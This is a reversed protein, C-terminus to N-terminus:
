LLTLENKIYKSPVEWPDVNRECLFHFVLNHFALGRGYSHLLDVMKEHKRGYEILNEVILLPFRDSVVLGPEQNENTVSAKESLRRELNKNYITFYHRIPDKIKEGSLSLGDNYAAGVVKRIDVGANKLGNTVLYLSDYEGRLAPNSSDNAYFIVDIPTDKLFYKVDSFTFSSSTGYPDSPYRNGSVIRDVLERRLKPHKVCPIIYTQPDFADMASLLAEESDYLLSYAERFEKQQYDELSM